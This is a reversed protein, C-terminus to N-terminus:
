PACHQDYNQSESGLLNWDNFNEAVIAGVGHDDLSACHPLKRTSLGQSIRQRRAATAIRHLERSALTSNASKAQNQEV